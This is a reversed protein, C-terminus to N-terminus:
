EGPARGEILFGKGPNLVLWKKGGGMCKLDQRGWTARGGEELKM